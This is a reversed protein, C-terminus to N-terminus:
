RAYVADVLTLFAAEMRAWDRDDKMSVAAFEGQAAASLVLQQAAALLIANFPPADIGAPPRLDGRVTAIWQQLGRSRAAALTSVLPSPAAVEWANIQRLMANNRLVILYAPLIQRMLAAYSTPAEDSRAAELERGIMAAIDGGIADVLGDLGGFYRYILQKDCGARRAVPNIGFGGFGSEALVAKAADLITSETRARDRNRPNATTDANSM